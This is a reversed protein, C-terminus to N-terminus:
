YEMSVGYGISEVSKVSKFSKFSGISEVSEIVQGRLLQCFAFPFGELETVLDFHNSSM